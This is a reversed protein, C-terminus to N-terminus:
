VSDNELLALLYERADLVCSIHYNMVASDEGSCKRELEEPVTIDLGRLRERVEPSPLGYSDMGSLTGLEQIMREALQSLGRLFATDKRHSERRHFFQQEYIRCEDGLQRLLAEYESLDFYLGEVACTRLYGPVLGAMKRLLTLIRPRNNYPKILINLSLSVVLGISTNILRYGLELFVNEETSVCASVVIICSLAVAYYVRFGCCLVIVALVGLGALWPAPTPDVLLLLLGIIGGLIVGVFQTRAERLSDQLTRAMGVIAGIGAFIPSPFGALDTILLALAVALATKVARLGIHIQRPHKM